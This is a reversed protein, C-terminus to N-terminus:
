GLKQSRMFGQFPMLRHDMTLGCLDATPDRLPQNRSLAADQDDPREIDM